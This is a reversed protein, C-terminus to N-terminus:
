NKARSQVEDTITRSGDLVARVAEAVDGVVIRPRTVGIAVEAEGSGTRDVHISAMQLANPAIFDKLLDNGVYATNRPDVHLLSCITRYPVVSPKWSARGLLDTLLVEDVESDLGLARVKERQVAALGDTLIGVLLGSARAVRIAQPVETYLRIRPTHSRYIYLAASKLGPDLDLERLVVDFVAGRGDRDLIESMRAAIQTQPLSARRALFDAVEGFGSSVFTREPYLTDDLDFIVAQM